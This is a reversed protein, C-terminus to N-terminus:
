SRRPGPNSGSYGDRADGPTDPWHGVDFGRRARRPPASPAPDPTPAPDEDSSLLADLEDPEREAQQAEPQEVPLSETVTPMPKVESDPRLDIRPIDGDALILVKPGGGINAFLRREREM